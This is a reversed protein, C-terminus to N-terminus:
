SRTDFCASFLYYFSLFRLSHFPTCWPLREGYFVSYTDDPSALGEDLAVGVRLAAFTDTAIFREM